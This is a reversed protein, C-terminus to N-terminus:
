RISFSNARSSCEQNGLEDKDSSHVLRQFKASLDKYSNIETPQVQQIATKLHQM